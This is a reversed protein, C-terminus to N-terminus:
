YYITKELVFAVAVVNASSSSFRGRLYTSPANRIRARISTIINKYRLLFVGNERARFFPVRSRHFLFFSLFSLFCLCFFLFACARERKTQIWARSCFFSEEDESENNNLFFLSLAERWRRMTTMTSATRRRQRRTRHELGRRQSSRM